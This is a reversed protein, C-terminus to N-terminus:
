KQEARLTRADRRDIFAPTHGQVLDREAAVEPRDDFDGGAQFCAIRDNEVRSVIPFLIQATGDWVAGDPTWLVENGDCILRVLQAGQRAVLATMHGSQLQIGDDM